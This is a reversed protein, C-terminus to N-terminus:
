SFLRIVELLSDCKKWVLKLIEGTPQVMDPVMIPLMGAAHASRIGNFSDEVAAAEKPDIGLEKCAMRYIDPAPKSNVVMDGCVVAQFYRRLGTEELHKLVTVQRTSSALALPYGKKTLFELVERAGKMVPLGDREIQAVSLARTRDLFEEVPFDKGYKKYFYDFMGKRNMGICDLATQGVDPVSMQKGAEKWSKMSISETDYLVGDMDFVVANVVKGDIVM